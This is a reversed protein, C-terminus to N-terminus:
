WCLLLSPYLHVGPRDANQKMRYLMGSVTTFHTAKYYFKKNKKLIKLMATIGTM